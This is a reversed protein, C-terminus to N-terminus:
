LDTFLRGVRRVGGDVAQLQDLPQLLDAHLRVEGVGAPRLRLIRRDVLEQDGFELALLSRRGSWLLLPGARRLLWTPGNGKGDRIRSRDSMGTEPHFDAPCSMREPIISM